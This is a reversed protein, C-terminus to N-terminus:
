PLDVLEQYFAVTQAAISDWSFRGGLTRAGQGLRAQLASDGAVTEIAAQLAAPDNPPVLWVNQGHVLEPLPEAPVTTILPRGHALAAMLTGRRLSVGDRYPMVMIDAAELYASVTVDPLFGSWHVRDNLGLGAIQREIGQLFLQNGGPDSSGTRGGIFVLHAPCGPGLGALAQLLTDAGKSESLFGFYGLLLPRDDLGIQRRAAAVEAPAPVRAQINSGIPIERLRAPDVGRALLRDFDARNTAVVGAASRALYSVVAPRLRGAKPFLYPVRLDHFTVITQALGRLRWNLFNIAPLRMDFAAAQYQLNVLDLDHRITVDAVVGVAGWWWRRVRPHLLAYPLDIPDRWGWFRRPAWDPRAEQATIVHVEHGAEALARALEQTFAGVGGQMPPYEGTVLGIKLAM